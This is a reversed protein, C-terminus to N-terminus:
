QHKNRYIARSTRNLRQNLRVRDTRTLRGRDAARMRHEQRGISAERRELRAGQRANLRGSQIGQAIRQQQHARRQNITVGHRAIPAPSAQAFGVTAAMALLAVGLLSVKM